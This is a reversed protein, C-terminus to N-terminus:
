RIHLTSPRPGYEFGNTVAIQSGYYISSNGWVISDVLVANADYGVFLGGGYSAGFAGSVFNDAITCNSLFPENYWNVSVGGGDRGASNGTILCNHLRPATELSQDSGGFYLGGGSTSSRNGEFISNYIGLPSDLACLGGGWSTVGAFPANPDGTTNPDITAQLARNSTWTTGSVTGTSDVAYLGGGHYAVNGAFNCDIVTVSSCSSWIGGGVTSDSGSITCGIFTAASDREVAIAGGYSVYIDDPVAVTNTDATNNTFVCGVFESSSGNGVYVAGGFNEIDINRDPLPWAQGGIGSVGGFTHNDTFNCDVFRPSSYYEVYVAGGYGSYKWYDDYYRRPDRMITEPSMGYLNGDKDYDAWEWGDWWSLIETSQEISEALMLNGGRGGQAGQSGTGGDGGNGGIARCNEFLCNQFLPSSRFGIYAGGGYAWGAWGGDFGVPHDQTGGAGPGGNGGTISCDVFRCNRITPSANYIFMTGGELGTGATGDAEAVAVGNAGVWNVDGITIGEIVTEPGVNIIEFIYNRLLTSAVVEPDDPSPGTITINKGNIRLHGRPYVNSAAPSYTGSPLLVVDGEEAADIAHQITTYEPASGVVITRPQEFEVTVHRDPGIIVINDNEISADDTTGAWQAIRWGSEPTAVIPVATGAYYEGSTPSISGHGGVVEATLRFTPLSTHDPFHFGLDVVGADGEGDTRTTVESLLVSEALGSGADVAPSNADQGSQAQSLYVKGLPGDVFLPDAEINTVDLEGGAVKHLKKTASDYMAYDGGPNDYFLSHTAISNGFDIEAIAVNTNKQFISDGVTVDSDWDCYIAGGLREATNEAFTSNTIVPSAFLGSSIAGGQYSASNDTFMCNKVLHDVYGGYFSLAGGTGQLGEARNNSFMCSEFAANTAACVVGGGIDVGVGPSEKSFSGRHFYYVNAQAQLGSDDLTGGLAADLDTDAPPAVGSGGTSINGSVSGGTLKVTGATLFMAGGSKARNNLFYCDNIRADFAEFHLAGGFGHFGNVAENGGFSCGDFTLQLEYPNQPDGTDFFAEIAGGNGGAKNGSFACGIFDADSMLRIAGGDGAATNSYFQSDKIRVDSCFPGIDMAGGCFMDWYTGPLSRVQGDVTLSDSRSVYQANAQNLSFVCENVDVVDYAELWVASSGINRTIECRDLSLTCDLDLYFAGGPMYQRTELQQIGAAMITTTLQANFAENEVFTCDVFKPNASSQYVAGGAVTGGPVVFAILGPAADGYEDALDAGAGNMGPVGAVGTSAFNDAFTCGKFLADSGDACFVAGGHGDGYAYGANGGHSATGTGENESGSGGDGGMGGRAACNRITCDVFTPRSGSLCAVAGGFGHGTGSGAHGGWVGDVDSEPPIYMGSIGSGGQAGVVLCDEIVCNLFTPSSGNECLIAGGYGTGTVSTGSAERIPSETATPDPNVPGGPIGGTVGVAGIWYGNRITLGAIVCSGTEGSHFHFARKRVFRSGGCDIITNAVVNPDNPDVSMLRINKGQLDIGMPDSINHVRESVIINTDGPSAALIADEITRFESPVLINRTVNKEFEVTVYKDGTDMTVTNTNRNWSPDNDTG